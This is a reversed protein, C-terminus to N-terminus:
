RVRFHGVVLKSLPLAREDQRETGLGDTLDLPLPVAAGGIEERVRALEDGDPAVLIAKCGRAALM